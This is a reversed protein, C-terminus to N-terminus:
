TYDDTVSIKKFEDEAGRLRGLRAMFNRKENVSKMMIKLPRQRDSKKMGLRHYMCASTPDVGLIGFLKDLYQNDTYKGEHIGHIIVNLERKTDIETYNRPTPLSQYTSGHNRTHM